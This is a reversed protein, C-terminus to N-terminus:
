MEGARRLYMIRINKMMRTMKLYLFVRHINSKQSTIPWLVKMKGVVGNRHERASETKKKTM